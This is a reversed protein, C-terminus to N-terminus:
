SQNKIFNLVENVHNKVKVNNWIKKVMGKEDIFFTTRVTGLFEKGMFKKPKYVDYMKQVKSDPDSLLILSLNKKDIFKKHSTCNDKSIGVVITNLKEFEERFNSFEIAELTCGPTNDKPYFYLIIRKGLLDKLCISKEYSDKLCFDPADKNEQM